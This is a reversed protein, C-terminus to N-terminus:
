WLILSGDMPALARDHVDAHPETTDVETSVLFLESLALDIEIHEGIKSIAVEL